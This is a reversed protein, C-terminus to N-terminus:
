WPRSPLPSKSSSANQPPTLFYSTPLLFVSAPIRQQGGRSSTITQHFDHQVTVGSPYFIFLGPHLPLLFYSPPLLFGSDDGRSSTITQHFDHRVTVGSPYFIFLGPHLSSTPLLFVPSQLRSGSDDGRSSTITQHFDNRLTVGSPYFIFLAPHLSSRVCGPTLFDSSTGVRYPNFM